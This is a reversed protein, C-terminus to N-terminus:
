MVKYSIFFKQCMKVSVTVLGQSEGPKRQVATSIDCSLLSLLSFDQMLLVSCSSKCTTRVHLVYCVELCQTEMYPAFLQGKVHKILIVVETYIGTSLFVYLQM